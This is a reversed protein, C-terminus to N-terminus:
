ILHLVHAKHFVDQASWHTENQSSITYTLCFPWINELTQATLVKAKKQSQLSHIRPKKSRTDSLLFWKMVDTIAESFERPCKFTNGSMKLVLDDWQSFVWCGIIFVIIKQLGAACPATSTQKILTATPSFIKETRNWLKSFSHKQKHM